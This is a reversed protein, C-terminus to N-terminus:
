SFFFTQTKNLTAITERKHKNRFTWLFSVNANEIKQPSNEAHPLPFTTLLCM